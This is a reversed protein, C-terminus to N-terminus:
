VTAVKRFFFHIFSYIFRMQKKTKSYLYNGLSPISFPQHILVKNYDSLLLFNQPAIAYSPSPLYLYCVTCKM